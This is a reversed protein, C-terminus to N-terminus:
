PREELLGRLRARARLLRMKFASRSIGLLKAAADGRLGVAGILLLTERDRRSIRALATLARRAAMADM